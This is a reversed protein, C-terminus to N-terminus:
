KLVWACKPDDEVIEIDRIISNKDTKLKLECYPYSDWNLVDVLAGGRNSRWYNIYGGDPTKERAYCFGNDLEFRMLSRNLYFSRTVKKPTPNYSACSSLGFAVLIGLVGIKILKKM